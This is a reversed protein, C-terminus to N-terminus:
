VFLEEIDGHDNGWLEDGTLADSRGTESGFVSQGTIPESLEEEPVTNQALELDKWRIVKSRPAPTMIASPAMKLTATSRNLGLLGNLSNGYMLTNM